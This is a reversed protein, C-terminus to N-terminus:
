RFSLRQIEAANKLESNRIGFESNRGCASLGLNAHFSGVHLLISHGAHGAGGTLRPHLLGHGGDGPHLPAGDAKEGVGHPHLAGGLRGGDDHGHFLRPVTSGELTLTASGVGWLGGLISQRVPLCGSQEATQDPRHPEHREEHVHGHPVGHPAPRQGGDQRFIGHSDAQDLHDQGSQDHHDILFEEDIAHLAHKVQGGVHVGQHGQPRPCGEQVTRSHQEEHGVIQHRPVHRPREVTEVPQVKLGGGHDQGEDGHALEQLRPRLALGGVRQLAEHAEGGVGGGDQPISRFGHNGNGLHFLAVAKHDSGTLTDGHVAHHQLPLARHVFRGQRPLADRHVLGHAIRDRGGGQILRPM